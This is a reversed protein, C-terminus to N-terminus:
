KRRICEEKMKGGIIVRISWKVKWYNGSSWSFKLIILEM